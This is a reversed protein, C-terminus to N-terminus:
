SRFLNVVLCVGLGLAVAAWTVFATQALPRPHDAGAFLRRELLRLGAVAGLGVTGYALAEPLDAGTGTSVLFLLAPVLGLLALGADRMARALQEVLEGLPAAHGALSLAIYLAPLMLLAVGLYLAPLAVALKAAHRVSGSGGPLGLALGAFGPGALTLGVERPGVSSRKTKGTM